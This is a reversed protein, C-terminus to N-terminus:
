GGFKTLDEISPSCFNPPHIQWLQTGLEATAPMTPLAFTGLFHLIAQFHSGETHIPYSLTAVTCFDPPLTM